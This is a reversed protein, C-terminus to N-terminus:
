PQLGGSGFIQERLEEFDIPKNIYGDAGYEQAKQYYEDNGYATIMYVKTGPYKEKLIKLLSLGSMGPMNIDSLILVYAADSAQIIELAEEGSFAFSLEILKKRIERWFVQNFLIEVDKEDDVVLVNM